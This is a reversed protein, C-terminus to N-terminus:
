WSGGMWQAPAAGEFYRQAIAMGAHNLTRQLEAMRGPLDELVESPRRYELSVRATGLQRQADSEFGTRRGGSDLEALAQEATALTYVLSRPFLRDLLLFEAADRDSTNGGYTRIFAHHAGCGRLVNVWAVQSGSSVAASSLLRSTMDARELNRGLVLFHWAQDHSMTSDSIGAIM